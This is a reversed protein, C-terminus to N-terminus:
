PAICVKVVAGDPDVDGGLTSVKAAVLIMALEAVSLPLRRPRPLAELTADINSYPRVFLRPLVMLPTGAVRVLAPVKESTNVPNVDLVV